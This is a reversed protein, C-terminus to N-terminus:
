QQHARRNDWISLTKIFFLGTTQEREKEPQKRLKHTITHQKDIQLDHETIEEKIGREAAAPSKTLNQAKKPVSQDPNCRRVREKRLGFSQFSTKPTIPCFQLRKGM